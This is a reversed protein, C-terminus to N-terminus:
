MLFVVGVVQLFAFFLFSVIGCFLKSKKSVSDIILFLLVYFVCYYGLLRRQAIVSSQLFLFLFGIWLHYQHAKTLIVKRRIRSNVLWIFICVYTMVNFFAGSVRPFNMINSANGGFELNRSPIMRIWCPIPQSANYIISLVDGIVPIRQLVGIVGAGKEAGSYADANAYFVALIADKYKFFALAGASFVTTSVIVTIIRSRKEQLSLLLYTPITILLFLGSEIRIGCTVIIILLLKLITIVSFKPNSSLYIACLYCLLVLMDRLIQSSYFFIISILCIVITHRQSKNEDFGFRLFVRFLVVGVLAFILLTSVQLGFYLEGGFSRILVGWTCLYVWYLYEQRAFFNYDTFIERYIKILNGDGSNIYENTHPIFADYTDYALLWSYEHSVMYWYCLLLYIWGALFLLAYIYISRKHQGRSVCLSISTGVIISCIVVLAAPVNVTVATLIVMILYAVILLIM